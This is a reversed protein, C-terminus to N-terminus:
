LYYKNKNEAGVGFSERTETSIHVLDPHGFMPPDPDALTTARQHQREHHFGQFYSSSPPSYLLPNSKKLPDNM